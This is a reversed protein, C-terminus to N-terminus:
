GAPPTPSPDPTPPTAAPPASNESGDPLVNIEVAGVATLYQRAVAQLREPTIALLRQHAKIQREIRDPETQARDVFALWGSNTKLANDFTELLPARARQLTDQSVPADRLGAITAAIAASTAPVQAIDVSAAVSFTGYGTYSRSLSSSAGPSYAKGLKERLTDTLAIRAIRELLAFELTAAPDEGDRTPWILTVLAQDKAGSHHLVHRKRSATFPRQRREAYPLFEAERQPLAGFTKGVLAIAADEDIDGVLGIEIAGKGLRGSIDAKLQAFTLKRYDEVEGLGFRPDGDALISGLDANLAAGPTARLSAFMNNITQRFLTEGEKRYGPDTIQAALLQLELELDRPTTGASAVFTEDTASFNASVSRGALLTDLEDRSHKGLGGLALVSVMRTALPNDRTALMNGGDVSLQVLVRDKELETRKLNLRVGNAFRVQRIGMLPERTDSVVTGAPGFQTYAFAGAAGQKPRAVPARMAEDWAARLGKGDGGPPTRGSFRLLPADLPVLERRLAALVKDPTIEPVFAELRELSNRPTDPVRDDNVLALAAGLLQAHSRTAASDAATVHANRINALQEAIEERTFGYLLVRRYEEAAVILGHRWKGDVTDVALETLRGEEFVDSTTLSANRFPANAERTRRLLRRNVIGYGILRLLNERRQALSDPEYLWPGKRVAIVRESLAPDIHLDELGKAEPSLPGATPPGEAPAPQWNGFRATIAAEVAAADFDGVVFLTTQAPVYERRWFAKLSEATAANLSELTGIPLRGAFRSGPALFEIQDQYNRLAFGNRDRLESLVVGRERDVAAPSFSLESATERMLFLATNLLAMDARPLDLKYTTQDYSTSANTDAGFALGDRELLKIMEGEPVQSSGNFAMHEVYHAYGRENEDEDLSGADFQLRVLATGKPSGNSRIVYRMGSALKGFRYGPELPVDSAQFAWEPKARPPPAAASSVRELQPACAALATTSLILALLAKRPLMLTKNGVRQAM